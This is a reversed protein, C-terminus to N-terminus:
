RKQSNRSTNSVLSLFLRVWNSYHNSLCTSISFSVQFQFFVVFWHQSPMRTYFEVTFSNCDAIEWPRRCAFIAWLTNTSFHPRDRVKKCPEICSSVSVRIRWERATMMFLNWERAKMVTSQTQFLSKNFVLLGGLSTKTRFLILNCWFTFSSQCM